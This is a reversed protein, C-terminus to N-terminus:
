ILDKFISLIQESVAMPLYQGQKLIEVLREGRSLQDQTAKDLDSSFQDFDLHAHVDVIIM